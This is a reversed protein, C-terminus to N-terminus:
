RLKLRQLLENTKQRIDKKHMGYIGAFLRINEAVTLDEYLSFKQSMYGIHQKIQEYETRIDYGAVRGTGSTPQNLGTLIHM